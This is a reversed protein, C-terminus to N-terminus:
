ISSIAKILLTWIEIKCRYTFKEESMAVRRAVIYVGQFCFKVSFLYEIRVKLDSIVHNDTLNVVVDTTVMNELTTMKIGQGSVGWFLAGRKPSFDLAHPLSDATDLLQVATSGSYDGRM